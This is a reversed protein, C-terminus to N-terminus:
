LDLFQINVWGNFDYSDFYQQEIKVKELWKTIKVEAYVIEPWFAFKEIIRIDGARPKQTLFTM